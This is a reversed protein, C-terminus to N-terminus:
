RVTITGRDASNNYNMYDYTGAENFTFDYAGGKGVTKSQNLAQYVSNNTTDASVIRMSRTSNNLFRVSKGRVIDLTRPSFGSNLYSVLYYGDKTMTPSVSTTTKTAPKPVQTTQGTSPIASETVTTDGPSVEPSSGFLMFGVIAIVIIAIISVITTNNM